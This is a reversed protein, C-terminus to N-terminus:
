RRRACGTEVDQLRVHVMRWEDSRARLVFWAKGCASESTRYFASVVAMDRFTRVDLPSGAVSTMRATIAGNQPLQTPSVANTLSEDADVTLHMVTAGPEFASTADGGVNGLWESVFTAAAPGSPPFLTANDRYLVRGALLGVILGLGAAIRVTKASTGSSSRSPAAETRTPLFSVSQLAKWLDMATAFRDWPDKELCRMIADALNKPATPNLHRIDVPTDNIHKALVETPNRGDFPLKGALMRYGMVGLSYLDSRHDIEDRGTAQEPSMYAPTGVVPDESDQVDDTLAKAIGFDMLLAKQLNGELIVNAPKIDRHVMKARHAAGLADCLETLVRQVESPPLRRHRELKQGLTEGRVFPMVYYILGGGERIDYIPVIGPHRLKALAIGEHRFSDVFMSVGALDPRIVKIAVIRDLRRDLAKYVWAFGGHGIPSVLEYEAGLVQRLTATYEAESPNAFPSPVGDVLTAESEDGHANGPPPPVEDILTAEPDDNPPTPTGCSSCFRDETTLQRDCVACSTLFDTM